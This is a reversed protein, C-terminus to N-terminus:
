LFDMGWMHTIFLDHSLQYNGIKLGYFRTGNKHAINIADITAPSLQPFIFDSIILIDALAYDKQMPTTLAVKIM